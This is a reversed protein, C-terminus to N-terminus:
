NVIISVTAVNSPRSTDVDNVVYVFSDRGPTAPAQYTFSGNASLWVKGGRLSPFSGDLSLAVTPAASLAVSDIDTDNALTGPV